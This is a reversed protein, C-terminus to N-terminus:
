NHICDTHQKGATKDVPHTRLFSIKPSDTNPRESGTEMGTTTNCGFMIDSHITCGFQNCRCSINNHYQCGHTHIEKQSGTTNQCQTFCTVEGSSDLNRSFVKWLFVTSIRSRDEIGTSRNPSQDSRDRNGQQCFSPAPFHSKDHDTRETKDPHTQPYEHVRGRVLAFMHIFGLQLINFLIFVFFVNDDNFFFM